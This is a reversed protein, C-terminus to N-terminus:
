VVEAFRAEWNRYVMLGVALVVLNYGFSYLLLQWDTTGSLLALHWLEIVPTMPNLFFLLRYKEPLMAAKYIVPTAYFWLNTMVVTLNAIDRFFLNLTGIMLSIGIALIAQNILLLPVFLAAMGLHDQQHWLLALFFVPLAMLFHAANHGVMALVLMFRPFVVKKLLDRDRLFVDAAQVTCNIFFQWPFLGSLLYLFFNEVPMKLAYDFAVFLVAGAALPNAVSWFYGFVTKKYRLRLDKWVLIM